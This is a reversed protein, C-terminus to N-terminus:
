PKYKKWLMKIFILSIFNPLFFIQHLISELGSDSSREIKCLKGLLNEQVRNIVLKKFNLWDPNLVM